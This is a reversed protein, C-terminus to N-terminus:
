AGSAICGILRGGSHLLLKRHWHSVSIPEDTDVNGLYTVHRPKATAAPAAMQAVKTFVPFYLLGVANFDLEPVPTYEFVPPTIPAMRAARATQRASTDLEILTEPANPLDRLGTVGSRLLRKNSGTRDHRLFCTIMRVCAIHGAAGTIVHESGIRGAAVQYLASRVHASAGLTPAGGYSVFTACFAAYVPRGEPDRFAMSGGTAEAILGWHRDGCDRLLWQESMGFPSLQAMGLTLQESRTPGPDVRNLRVVNM